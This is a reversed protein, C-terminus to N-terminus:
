NMFLNIPITTTDKVIDIFTELLINESEFIIPLVTYLVLIQINDKGILIKGLNDVSKGFDLITYKGEEVPYIM